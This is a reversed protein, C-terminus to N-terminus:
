GLLVTHARQDVQIENKCGNFFKETVWRYGFVHMLKVKEAIYTPLSVSEEKPYTYQKGNQATMISGCTVARGKGKAM